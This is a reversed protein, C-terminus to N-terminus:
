NCHDLYFGGAKSVGVPQSYIYIRPKASWPFQTVAKPWASSAIPGPHVSPRICYLQDEAGSKAKETVISVLVARRKDCAAVPLETSAKRSGRFGPLLHLM